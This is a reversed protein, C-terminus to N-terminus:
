EEKSEKKAPAQQPPAKKNKKRFNEARAQRDAIVTEKDVIMTADLTGGVAEIKEKAAPVAKFVTIKLKRKVTGGGLLKTVGLEHLNIVVAGQTVLAKKESVLRDAISALHGVNMTDDDQRIKSDFGKKKPDKGGVNVKWLSPKKSDCRKGSGANGRGARSGAGRHKKKSGYGHTKSGRFRVNKKRAHSTM